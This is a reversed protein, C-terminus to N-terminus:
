FIYSLLECFYINYFFKLFIKGWSEFNKFESLLCKLFEKGIDFVVNFVLIIFLIGKFFIM